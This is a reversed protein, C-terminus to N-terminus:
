SGRGRGGPLGLMRGSCPLAMSRPSRSGRTLLALQEYRVKGSLVALLSSLSYRLHARPQPQVIPLARATGGDGPCQPFLQDRNWSNWTGAAGHELQEM